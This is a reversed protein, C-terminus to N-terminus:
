RGSTYGGGCCPSVQSGGWGSVQKIGTDFSHLVQLAKGPDSRDEDGMEQKYFGKAM